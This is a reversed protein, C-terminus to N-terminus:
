QLSILENNLRIAGEENRRLKIVYKSSASNKILIFFRTKIFIIDVNIPLTTKKIFPWSGLLGLLNFFKVKTKNKHLGWLQLFWLLWLKIESSPYIRIESNNIGHRLISYFSNKCNIYVQSYIKYQMA